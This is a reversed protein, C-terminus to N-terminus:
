EKLGLKKGIKLFKSIDIEETKDRATEKLKLFDICSKITASTPNVELQKALERELKSISITTPADTINDKRMKRFEILYKQISSPLIEPFAEQLEQLTIDPNQRYFDRAKAKISNTGM